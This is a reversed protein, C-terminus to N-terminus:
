SLRHLLGSIGAAVLLLVLLNFAANFVPQFERAVWVEIIRGVSTYLGVAAALGFLVLLALLGWQLYRVVADADPLSSDAVPASGSESADSM